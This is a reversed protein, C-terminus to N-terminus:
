ERERRDVGSIAKRHHDALQHLGEQDYYRALMKHAERHVPNLELTSRLWGAGDKQFGYEMLNKGIEFRSESDQPKERAQDIATKVKSLATDARQVYELHNKAEPNNISTLVQALLYRYDYDVENKVLRSRILKLAVEANGDRFYERALLLNVERHEPYQNLLTELLARSEKPQGTEALCRARAVGLEVDDAPNGGFQRFLDEAKTYQHQSILAIFLRRKIDRRQPNLRLARQYDEIASTNNGLQEAIQGRIFSPQPDNAVDSQWADLLQQAEGLRYNLLLGNILAECIESSESDSNALLKRLAPEAQALQGTQAIALLEERRVLEPPAGRASAEHLNRHMADLSGSLRSVRALLLSVASSRPQIIELRNLVQQAPLLERSQILQLAWCHHFWIVGLSLGWISLSGITLCIMKPFLRHKRLATFSAAM